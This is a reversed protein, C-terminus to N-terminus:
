REEGGGREREEKLRKKLARTFKPADNFKVTVCTANAM